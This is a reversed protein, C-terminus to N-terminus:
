VVRASKERLELCRPAHIWGEHPEVESLCWCPGDAMYREVAVMSQRIGGQPWSSPNDWVFQDLPSHIRCKVCFTAGYFRPDRAYTEAITQGMTTEGGCTLHVYSRRVPEVFGRALEEPPLVLYDAQQGDPRHQRLKPDSPDTTM